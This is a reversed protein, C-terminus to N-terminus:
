RGIKVEKDWQALRDARRRLREQERFGNRAPMSPQRQYIRILEICNGCTVEEINKSMRFNKLFKTLFFSGCNFPGNELELHVKYTHNSKPHKKSVQDGTRGSKLVKM